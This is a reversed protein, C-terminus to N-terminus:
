IVFKEVIQCDELAVKISFEENLKGSFSFELSESNGAEAQMVAKGRDDLIMLQLDTPLYTQDCSPYIAVSIDMSLCENPRVKVLLKLYKETNFLELKKGLQVTKIEDERASQVLVLNRFNIALQPTSDAFLEEVTLWGTEIVDDLWQSLRVLIPEAQNKKDQTLINKSSLFSPSYGKQVNLNDLYDLLKGIPQLKSIPIESNTVEPVFGLLTAERLSQGLRVAVYGIRNQWVEQPLNVTQADLLVPRCELKGCGKIEVMATNIFKHILPDLSDSNNLDVVFGQNELYYKLAYIALVNLYVQQAQYINSYYSQLQQATRHAELALSVSVTQRELEANMTRLTSLGQFTM